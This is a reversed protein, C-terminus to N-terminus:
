ISKRMIQVFKRLRDYVEELVLVDAKNHDLVYKLATPDGYQAKQWVAIKVPTKENNCHLADAVSALRKSHLKLKARATYYCDYHNLSGYAPFPIDLILCRTRLFPIDFGTSYYGVVVDTKRLEALLSLVIRRDLRGDMIEKKTIIDSYVKKDGVYKLAWSLMIGIDANFNTTEIDFFAVKEDNLWHKPGAQEQRLYFIKSRIADTSRGLIDAIERYHMKKKVLLELATTQQATWKEQM